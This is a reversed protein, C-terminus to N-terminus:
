IKILSVHIKSYPYRGRLPVGIEGAAGNNAQSRFLFFTFRYRSEFGPGKGKPDVIEPQSPPVKVVLDVTYPFLANDTIVTCTYTGNDTRMANTTDINFSGGTNRWHDAYEPQFFM